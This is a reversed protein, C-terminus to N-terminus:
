VFWTPRNQKWTAINRKEGMYYQQYAIVPDSNKYQDPMAQAFKTLPGSPIKDAL